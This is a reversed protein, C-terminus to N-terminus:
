CNEERLTAFVIDDHGPAIDLSNTIKAVMEIIRFKQTESTIKLRQYSAKIFTLVSSPAIKINKRPVIYALFTLSGDFLLSLGVWFDVLVWM